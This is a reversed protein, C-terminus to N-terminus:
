IAAQTDPKPPSKLRSTESAPRIVVTDDTVRSTEDATVNVPQQEIVVSERVDEGSIVSDQMVSIDEKIRAADREKDSQMMSAVTENLEDISEKLEPSLSHLSEQEVKNLNEKLEQLKLEQTLENQVSAAMSRLTRIWGTVTKVAIPLRKPGLVVLGIICVLLLESFGTDFM